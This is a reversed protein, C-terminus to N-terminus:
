DRYDPPEILCPDEPPTPETLKEGEPVPVWADAPLPQLDDPVSARTGPRAQQYERAERCKDLETKFVGCGSLGTATLITMTLALTITRM